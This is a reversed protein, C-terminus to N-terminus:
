LKNNSIILNFLDDEEIRLLRELLNSASMIARKFNMISENRAKLKAWEEHTRFLMYVYLEDIVREHMVNLRCFNKLVRAPALRYDPHMHEANNLQLYFILFHQIIRVTINISSIAFPYDSTDLLRRFEQPYQTGVYILQQLGMM